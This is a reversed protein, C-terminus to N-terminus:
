RGCALLGGLGSRGRDEAQYARVRALREPDPDAGFHTYCAECAPHGALTLVVDGTAHDRCYACRKSM